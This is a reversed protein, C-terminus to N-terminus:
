HKPPFCCVNPLANEHLVVRPCEYEFMWLERECGCFKDASSNVLLHCCAPNFGREISLVGHM